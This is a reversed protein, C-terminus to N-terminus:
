IPLQKGKRQYMFEKHEQRTDGELITPFHTTAHDEYALDARNEWGRPTVFVASCEHYLTQFTPDFMAMHTIAKRDSMLRTTTLTIFEVGTPIPLKFNTNLNATVSKRGSHEVSRYGIVDFITMVLGGHTIGPPGCSFPGTHTISITTASSDASPIAPHNIYPSDEPILTGIIKENSMPTTPHAPNHKFFVETEAKGHQSGEWNFWLFPNFTRPEHNFGAVYARACFDQMEPTWKFLATPPQPSAVLQPDPNNLTHQMAVPPTYNYDLPTQYQFEPDNASRVPLPAVPVTTPLAPPLPPYEIPSKVPPPPTTTTFAAHQLGYVSSLAGAGHASRQLVRKTHPTLTNHLRSRATRALTTQLM